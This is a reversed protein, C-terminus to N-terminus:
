SGLPRKFFMILRQEGEDGTYINTSVLQWGKNTWWEMEMDIQDPNVTPVIVEDTLYEWKKM